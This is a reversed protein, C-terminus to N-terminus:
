RWISIMSLVGVAFLVLAALCQLIGGTRSRMGRSSDFLKVCGNVANMVAALAFILPFMIRNQEPNIFALVACIVVLIGIVVHLLDLLLATNRPNKKKDQM